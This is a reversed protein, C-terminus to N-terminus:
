VCELYQPANTKIQSLHLVLCVLCVASYFAPSHFSLATIDEKLWRFCPMKFLPQVNLSYPNLM